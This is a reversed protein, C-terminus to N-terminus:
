TNFTLRRVSVSLCVSATCLTVIQWKLPWHPPDSGSWSRFSILIIIYVPLHFLTVHLYNSQVYQTTQPTCNHDCWVKLCITNNLPTCNHDCWVKLCITNNLPTCNHDCWVKLCSASCQWHCCKVFATNKNIQAMRFLWTWKYLPHKYKHNDNSM